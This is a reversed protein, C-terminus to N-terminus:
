NVTVDMDNADSGLRFKSGSDQRFSSIQDHDPTKANPRILDVQIICALMADSDEVRREAVRSTDSFEDNALDDAQRSLETIARQLHM